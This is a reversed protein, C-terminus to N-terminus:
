AGGYVRDVELLPGGKEREVQHILAVNQNDVASLMADSYKPNTKYWPRRKFFDRIVQDKFAYGHRAFIENRLVSLEGRSMKRLEALTFLRKFKLAEESELRRINEQLLSREIKETYNLDAVPGMSDFRVRLEGLTLRQEQNALRVANKYEIPNLDSPAVKRTAKYWPQTQFYEVVWSERFIHGHRGYIGDRLLTLEVLSLNELEDATLPRQSLAADGPQIGETRYVVVHPAPTPEAFVTSPALALALALAVLFRAVKLPNRM